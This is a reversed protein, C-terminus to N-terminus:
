HNGLRHVKKLLKIAERTNKQFTKVMITGMFFFRFHGAYYGFTTTM